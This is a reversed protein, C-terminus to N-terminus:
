AIQEAADHVPDSQEAVCVPHAFGAAPYLAVLRRDHQLAVVTGDRIAASVALPALEEDLPGLLHAPAACGYVIVHLALGHPSGSEDVNLILVLLDTSM